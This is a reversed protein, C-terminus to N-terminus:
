IIELEPDNNTDSIINIKLRDDHSVNQLDKKVNVYIKDSIYHNRCSYILCCTSVFLLANESIRILLVREM